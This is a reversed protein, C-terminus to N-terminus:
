AKSEKDPPIKEVIFTGSVVDVIRVFDGQKVEHGEMINALASLRVGGQEYVIEGKSGNMILTVVEATQGIMKGAYLAANKEAKYLPLTVFLFLLMSLFLAIILAVAAILLNNWSSNVSLVYGTGGFVTVCTGITTPSLVPLSGSGLGFQVDFMDGLFITAVAYIVGAIFLVLYMTEM